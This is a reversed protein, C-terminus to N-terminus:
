FFGGGLGPSAREDRAYRSMGRAFGSEEGPCWGSEEGHGSGGVYVYWAGVGDVVGVRGGHAAVGLCEEVGVGAGAAVVGWGDVVSGDAAGDGFAPEPEGPGAVEDVGDECGLALGVGGRSDRVTPYGNM